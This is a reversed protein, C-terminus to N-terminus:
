NRPDTKRTNKRIAFEEYRRCQSQEINHENEDYEFSIDPEALASGSAAV